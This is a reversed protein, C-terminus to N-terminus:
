IREACFEQVQQGTFPWNLQQQTKSHVLVPILLAYKEQWEQEQLIDNLQFQINNEYLLHQAEECLHCAETGFLIFDAM